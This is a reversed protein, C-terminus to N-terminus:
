RHNERAPTMAQIVQHQRHPVPLADSGSIVTIALFEKLILPPLFVLVLELNVHCIAINLKYQTWVVSGMQCDSELGPVETEWVSYTQLIRVPAHSMMLLTHTTIIQLKQGIYIKYIICSVALASACHGRIPLIIFLFVAVTITTVARM